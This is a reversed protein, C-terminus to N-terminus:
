TKVEPLNQMLIPPYSDLCVDSPFIQAEEIDDAKRIQRALNFLEGIDRLAFELRLDYAGTLRNSRVQNPIRLKKQIKEINSVNKLKLFVTAVCNYGLKKLNVTITSSTIVNGEVLKKYRQTVTKTSMGIQKAIKNFPMRSEKLLVNIIQRDRDNIQGKDFGAKRIQKSFLRTVTAAIKKSKGRAPKIELNDTGITGTSDTWLLTEVSTIKPDSAVEKTVTPLNAMEPLAALAVINYRGFTETGLDASIIYRNKRLSGMVNKENNVPTKIGIEVICEYGFGRPDVEIHEGTIIGTKKM